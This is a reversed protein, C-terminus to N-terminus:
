DRLEIERCLRESELRDAKAHDEGVRHLGHKAVLTLPKDALDEKLRTVSGAGDRLGGSPSASAVGQPKGEAPSLYILDGVVSWKLDFRETMLALCTPLDVGDLSLTLGGAVQENAVKGSAVQKDVVSVGDTSVDCDSSYVIAVDFALGIARVSEVLFADELEVDGESKNGPIRRGTAGATWRGRGALIDADILGPVANEDMWIGTTGVSWKTLGYVFEALETASEAHLANTSCNLRGDRSSGQLDAHIVFAEGLGDAIGRVLEACSLGASDWQVLRADPTIAVSALAHLVFYIKIMM